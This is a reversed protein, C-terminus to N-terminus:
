FSTILCCLYGIAISVFILYATITVVNKVNKEAKFLYFLGLGANATLGSLCAGFSIGGSLYLKSILVSSACNPILGVITSVVPALYKNARLFEVIRAETIFYLLLAFIVNIILVAVFTKLSHLLPHFVHNDLFLRATKNKNPSSDNFKEAENTINENNEHAHDHCGCLCASNIDDNTEEASKQENKIPSQPGDAISAKAFILDFLYGAIIAFIFKAALMPLIEYWKSANSLFVPIAEDSTAIFVAIVTGASIKRKAYKDSAVVSFCCQPLLGLAAALPVSAYNKGLKKQSIKKEFFSFIFNVAFVFIFIKVSDLLADLLLEWMKFDVSQKVLEFQLAIIGGFAFFIM